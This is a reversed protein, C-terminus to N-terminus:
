FLIFYVLALVVIAAGLSLALVYRVKHGTVGQRAETTTKVPAAQRDSAM